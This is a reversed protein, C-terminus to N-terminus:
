SSLEQKGCNRCYVARYGVVTRLQMWATEQQRGCRTCALVRSEYPQSEEDQDHREEDISEQKKNESLIRKWRVTAGKAIRAKRVLM